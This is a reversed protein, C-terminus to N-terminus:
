SRASQHRDKLMASGTQLDTKVFEDCEALGM